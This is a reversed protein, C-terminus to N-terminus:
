RRLGPFRDTRFWWRQFLRDLSLLRPTMTATIDRVLIRTPYLTLPPDEIPMAGESAEIDSLRYIRYTVAVPEQPIAIAADLKSSLERGVNVITIQLEQRATSDRKPRRLDISVPLYFVSTAGDELLARFGPAQSTIYVPADLTSHDFALTEAIGDEAGDGGSAYIKRAEISLPM